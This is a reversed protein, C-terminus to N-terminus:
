RPQPASAAPPPAAPIADPADSLAQANWVWGGGMARYLNAYSQFLAAQTSTLSLEAGFLLDQANALELYITVGEKYRIDALDRYRRLAEVNGAQEDRAATYKTRDILADNVDQFASIISRQYEQVTQRQIAEAQRVQNRIRGANFLPQALTGGFSWTRSSGKFLDSLSISEVGFLGTLSIAPFYAARAVGINANAAILNQESQRIDPRRELLSSPLAAPVAPFTLQDLTRGREITHPSEGLLVSIFDEQRMILREIDVMQASANRLQSQAQRFDSEPAAGEQYRLQQLRLVEKRSEVTNRAIDLQKDLARLQIYANATTTAVTMVVTRRGEESALLSARASETARRLRGWIDLEYSASLDLAYTNFPQSQFPPPLFQRQRAASADLNLQPFLQSRTIGYQAYAQEVNATAVKLDLNSALAQRVLRSLVEDGFQDWWVVNSMERAQPESVRWGPPAPVDPRRYNPGMTCASLLLTCFFTTARVVPRM